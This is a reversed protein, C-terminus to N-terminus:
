LGLHELEHGMGRGTVRDEWKNRGMGEQRSEKSDHVTRAEVCGVDDMM